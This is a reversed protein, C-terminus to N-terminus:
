NKKLTLGGTDTTGYNAQFIAIYDASNSQGSVTTYGQEGRVLTEDSITESTFNMVEIGLIYDNTYSHAPKVRQSFPAYKATLSGDAAIEVNLWLWDYNPTGIQTRGFEYYKGTWSNTGLEPLIAAYSGSLSGETIEQAKRGDFFLGLSLTQSAYDIIASADMIVNACLGVIGLNNTVNISGSPLTEGGIPDVFTIEDTSSANRNFYGGRLAFRSSMMQWAGKLDSVELQVVEFKSGDPLDISGRRIEGTGNATWSIMGDSYSLWGSSVTGTGGAHPTSGAKDDTWLTGSGSPVGVVFEKNLATSSAGWSDFATVSAVYSGEEIGAFVVSWDKKMQSPQPCRYFDAMYNKTAVVAGAKKVSVSYHHVFDDDTGAAFSITVDAKGDSVTGPVVNITSLSPATNAARLTAHNYTELHKKDASPFSTEWPKGIEAQRTFDMRTIRMNGNVDFQVLHGSSVEGADKLVTNSSKNEYDGGEFAMYSTSGCGVSTFAGQWISRPDNIPFHLHGSFTVVQPYNKLIDTLSTTYWYNGLDSGYVTDYIMPHTLVIVYRQPDAETIAKLQSDLWSTSNADYIVPSSGNPTIGLIHYNGVICHRCEFNKRMTQDQDTLFYDDGLISHFVANQTVTSASWSYSPNMDHNGITYIMPVKVPDFVQEYLTKYTSIQGSIAANVLDGVVMVADIGDADHEAAKAKLQNLASTFKAESGYQNGIHTDSIAALSLMIANEDFVDSLDITTLPIVLTEGQSTVIIVKDGVKKVTTFYIGSEGTAKILKEWSVGGDTSIYWYEDDGIKLQPAVADKGDEGDKGNIGTTPIRKGNSDLLFETNGNMTLTWYYVGGVAQVGIVPAAAGDKGNYITLTGGDSLKLKWGSGTADNFGEPAGVISLTGETLKQLAQINSNATTQAHELAGVRAKLNEIEQRLESDDYESCTVTAFVALLM